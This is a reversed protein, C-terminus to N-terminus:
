ASPTTTVVRLYIHAGCRLAERTRYPSSVRVSTRETSKMDATARASLSHTDRLWAGVTVRTVLPGPIANMSLLVVHGDAFPEEPPGFGIASITAEPKVTRSSTM